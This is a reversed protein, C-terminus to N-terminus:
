HFPLDPAHEIAFGEELLAACVANSQAEAIHWYSWNVFTSKLKGFKTLIDIPVCTHMERQLWPPYDGDTWGPVEESSFPNTTKPRREGQDDFAARIIESYADRPVARRFEGWTSSSNIAAHLRAIARARARPAFVLGGNHPVVRYLLDKNM